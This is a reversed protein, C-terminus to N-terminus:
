RRLCGGEGCVHRRSGVVVHLLLARDYGVYAADRGRLFQRPQASGRSRFRDRDVFDVGARQVISWDDALDPGGHAAAHRADDHGVQHDPQRGPEDHGDDCQSEDRRHGVYVPAAMPVTDSGMLTWTKGDTSRYGDFKHGTRVLRVWGPAAGAGGSTTASYGGVDIRRQFAYGNSVSILAYAHRSNAALTERVMVGSKSWGNAAGLGNVRAIIEVDGSVPQYVYHFQDSTSWIDM